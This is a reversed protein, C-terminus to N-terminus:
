HDMGSRRRGWRRSAATIIVVSKVNAKVCQHMVDPVFKAPVIILVLEPTEGISKLDPYCKLGGIEDAKRNVPFIKGEYGGKIMSTLIEYGVKGKKQSAGVIAVSLPSFFKDLSM